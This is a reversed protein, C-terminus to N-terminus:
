KTERADLSKTGPGAGDMALGTLVKLGCNYRDHEHRRPTAPRPACRAGTGPQAIALIQKALQKARHTGAIGVESRRM